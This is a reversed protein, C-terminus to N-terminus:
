VEEILGDAVMKCIIEEVKEVSIGLLLSLELATVESGEEELVKIVLKEMAKTIILNKGKMKFLTEGRNYYLSEPFIKYVCM